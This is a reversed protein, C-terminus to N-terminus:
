AKDKERNMWEVCIDMAKHANLINTDVVTLTTTTTYDLRLVEYCGLKANYGVYYAPYKSM